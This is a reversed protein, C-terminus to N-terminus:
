AGVKEVLVFGVEAVQYTPGDQNAISADTRNIQITDGISLSTHSRNVPLVVQIANWLQVYSDPYGFITLESQLNTAAYICDLLVQNTKLENMKETLEFTASASACRTSNWTITIQTTM